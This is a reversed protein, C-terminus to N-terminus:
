RKKKLSRELADLQARLADLERRSPPGSDVDPDADPGEDEEEDLDEEPEPVPRPRGAVPPPPPTPTPYAAAGPFGAWPGFSGLMRALANTAQFPVGAFPVYPQLQSAGRKAQFYLELAWGLYNGLFQALDEEEMRILQTLLPAPLLKGAGRSELIIQTLTQQTLDANTKADIVRVDVGGRVREALEELTIYRSEDTDYLRRNSYKKVIVM